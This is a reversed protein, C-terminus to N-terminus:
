KFYLQIDGSIEVTQGQYNFYYGDSGDSNNVIGSFKWEGILQGGSYQKVHYDLNGTQFSRDFSECMRACGGFSFLSLVIISLLLKIRKKM